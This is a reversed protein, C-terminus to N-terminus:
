GRVRKEENGFGRYAHHPLETVSHCCFYIYYHLWVLVIRVMYSKGVTRFISGKKNTKIVRLVEFNGGKLMSTSKQSKQKLKGWKGAERPLVQLGFGCSRIPCRGQRCSSVQRRWRRRGRLPQEHNSPYNKTIDYFSIIYSHSYRKKQTNTHNSHIHM